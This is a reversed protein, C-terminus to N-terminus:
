VMSGTPGEGLLEKELEAHVVVDGDVVLVREMSALLGFQNGDLDRAVLNLEKGLGPAFGAIAVGVSVLVALGVLLEQLEETGSSDPVVPVVLGEPGEDLLLGLM